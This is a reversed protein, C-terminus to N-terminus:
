SVLAVIYDFKTLTPRYNLVDYHNKKIKQLIKRGGNITWRIQWKLRGPLFQLIEKGDDFLKETREIEFKIIQRLTDTTQESNIISKDTEFKLFDELPIYIRGKELDVKVDQWFNTLQLATCIKDSLLIIRENRINYLELIIKGVPNASNKCYSLLDDFTNYENKYIDQEFASLLDFFHQPNLKRNLITNHLLKWFTNHYNKDLSDEFENRFITLTRKREEKSYNGEDSIDDATRAFTYILAVDKRLDKPFLFSAVPFNEYHESSIKLADEYTQFDNSSPKM